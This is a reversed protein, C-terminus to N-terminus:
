EAVLPQSAMINDRGGGGESTASFHFLVGFMERCINGQLVEDQMYGGKVVKM